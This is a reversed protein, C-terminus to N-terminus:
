CYSCYYKKNKLNKINNEYDSNNEDDGKRIFDLSKNNPYSEGICTLCINKNCDNCPLSHEKLIIKNCMVCSCSKKNKCKFCIAKDNMYRIYDCSECYSKDCFECKIVYYDRSYQSICSDCKIKCCENCSNTNNCKGCKFFEDLKNKNICKDCIKTYKINDHDEDNKHVEKICYFCLETCCFDCSITSGIIIKDCNKCKISEKSMKRKM